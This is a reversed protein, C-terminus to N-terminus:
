CNKYQKLFIDPLCDDHLHNQIFRFLNEDNKDTNVGLILVEKEKKESASSSFISNSNQQNFEKKM